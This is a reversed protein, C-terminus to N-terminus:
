NKLSVEVIDQLTATGNQMGVLLTYTNENDRLRVLMRINETSWHKAIRIPAYHYRVTKIPLERVVYSTPCRKVHKNKMQIDKRTLHRNLDKVWKNVPNNMKKNSLKLLEKYTKSLAVKDCLEIAFITKRETIQRRM